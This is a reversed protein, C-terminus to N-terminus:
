KKILGKEKLTNHMTTIRETYDEIFLHLLKYTQYQICNDEGPCRLFAPLTMLNCLHREKGKYKEVYYFNCKEIM